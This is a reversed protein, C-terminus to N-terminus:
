ILCLQEFRSVSKSTHFPPFHLCSVFGSLSIDIALLEESVLLNCTCLANASLLRIMFSLHEPLSEIEYVVRFLVTVGFECASIARELFNM